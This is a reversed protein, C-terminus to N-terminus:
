STNLRVPGDHLRAHGAIGIRRHRVTIILPACFCLPFFSWSTHPHTTGIPRQAVQLCDSFVTSRGLHVLMPSQNPSGRWSRGFNQPCQMKSHSGLRLQLATGPMPKNLVREDM